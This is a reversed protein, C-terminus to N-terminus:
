KEFELLWKKRQTGWAYGYDEGQKRVVRHCPIFLAVPNKGCATGAARVANQSGVQEAMYTYTITKGVATKSIINWISKQFDTGKLEKSVLNSPINKRSKFYNDLATKLIGPLTKGPGKKDVFIAAKVRGLTDLTIELYGLPKPCTYYYVTTNAIEELRAQLLKVILTKPLPKNKLFQVAGSSCKYGALEKKFQKTINGSYPYFGLHNKYMAFSCIYGGQVKFSPMSYSIGEESPTYKQVIARLEYMQKQDEKEFKAIYKDM